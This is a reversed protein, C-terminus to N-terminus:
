LVNRVASMANVGQAFVIQKEVIVEKFCEKGFECLFENFLTTVARAVESPINPNGNLSLLCVAEFEM